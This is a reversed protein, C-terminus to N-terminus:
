THSSNLRTSKRDEMVVIGGPVVREYLFNLCVMTSEYWDGDLRLLAINKPEALSANITNQFWGKHFVVLERPYRIKEFLLSEVDELPGVCKGIASLNGETRHGSYSISKEGDLKGPEPLGEFSDFLHLRRTPRGNTARLHALAMMGVSGGKWVGCEVLDGPIQYRDLHLVQQWLTTLRERSSMSNPMVIKLAEQIPEEGDYGHRAKLYPEELPTCRGPRWGKAAMYPYFVRNMIMAKARNIIKM